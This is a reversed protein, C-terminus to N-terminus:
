EKEGAVLGGIWRGVRNLWEKRGACNCTPPLGFMEKIAVYNEETVGVASLWSAIKDGLGSQEPSPTQMSSEQGVGRGENWATRYEAKNRCLSHWHPTKRCEHYRCWFTGKPGANEDGRCKCKDVPEIM